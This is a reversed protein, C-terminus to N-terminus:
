GGAQRGAEAAFERRFRAQDELDPLNEALADVLALWSSARRATKTVLIRAVPGISAALRAEMAQLSEVSWGQEGSSGARSPTASLPAASRPQEGSTSAGQRAGELQDGQVSVAELFEARRAKSPIQGAVLECLQRLGSAEAATRKVLVKALPGIAEALKSEVRALDEPSWRSDVALTADAGDTPPTVVTTKLGALSVPEPLHGTELRALDLDFASMDPYREERRRALARLIVNCLGDSLAPEFSRPDRPEDHLHKAIVVMPSSGEFPTHGTVLHYLTAGLSYIDARGDIDRRGEIQEPSIYHPTGAVVGTQTLAQDDSASKALGLDVLKLVGDDRLILNDPKVDRHVVGAAHAFALAACAQRCLGVAEREAFRSRTRLLEGLSRGPVFEMALFTTGGCQGFDYIQVINRHNLRAVSRAEKLFRQRYNDDGSLDKGLVKLAVDRDLTLHRARFVLGMGGHGLEEVVEYGGFVQGPTPRCVPDDTM